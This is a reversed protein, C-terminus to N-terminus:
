FIPQVNNVNDSTILKVPIVIHKPVKNGSLAKLAVEISQKGGLPFVVSGTPTGNRIANQAESTYDCGV